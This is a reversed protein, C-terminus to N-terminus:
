YKWKRKRRREAGWFSLIKAATVGTITACVSAIWITVIVETPNSSGGASRLAIITAPILQISSTNLVLFMSMADTCTDKNSNLKQLEGMAKIGLPTAANGMGLFNAALNMVVAGLAPHDKPIGPFLFGLLPRVLRALRKVLGSKEAIGMLGSWMCMIGLLGISLQVATGSSEIAAKTVEEIRGNMIAVAFGIALMGFWIYNLM